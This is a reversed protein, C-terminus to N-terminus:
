RRRVMVGTYEQRNRANAFPEWINLLNYDAQKAMPNYKAMFSKDFQTRSIPPLWSQNQYYNGESTYNSPPACDNCYPEWINQLPGYAKQAMDDYKAMFQKDFATRNDFVHQKQIPENYVGLDRFDGINNCNYCSM